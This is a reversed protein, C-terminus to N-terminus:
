KLSQLTEVIEDRTLGKESFLSYTVGGAKLLAINVYEGTGKIQANEFSETYGYENYVGSIDEDRQSTRFNIVQGDKVYNISVTDGAIIMIREAKYGEPLEPIKFVFGCAAQVEELTQYEVIPNPLAVAKSSEIYVLNDEVRTSQNSLLLDYMKLPVYVRGNIITPAYNLQMKQTLGLAKSSQKYYEDLGVVLNTKVSQNELMITDNESNWFVNFGLAEATPRLPVIVQDEDRFVEYQDMNIEEGNVIIGRLAEALVPQVTVTLLVVSLGIVCLVKKM